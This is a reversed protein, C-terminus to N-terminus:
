FFRCRSDRTLCHAQPSVWFEVDHQRSVKPYHKIETVIGNLFRSESSSKIIAQCNKLLYQEPNFSSPALVHIKITDLQNYRRNWTLQIPTLETFRPSNFQLTYQSMIIGKLPGNNRKNLIAAIGHKQHIAFTAM